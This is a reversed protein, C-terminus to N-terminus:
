CGGAIRLSIRWGGGILALRQLSIGIQKEDSRGVWENELSSSSSSSSSGYSPHLLLM